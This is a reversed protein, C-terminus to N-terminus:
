LDVKIIVQMCYVVPNSKLMLPTCSSTVLFFMYASNGYAILINTVDKLPTSGVSGLLSSPPDALNVGLATAAKTKNDPYV